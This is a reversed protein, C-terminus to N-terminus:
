KFIIKGSKIFKSNRIIFHKLPDLMKGECEKTRYNEKKTEQLVRRTIILEEGNASIYPLYEPSDSNIVEGMNIPNFYVPNKISLLAFECNLIYREHKNKEEFLNESIIFYELAEKYYANKYLREALIFIPHANNKSELDYVQLYEDVSELIKGEKEYISSMLLHPKKWKNNKKLLKLTEEKAQELDEQQILEFIKEYKKIDKNSQSFLLVSIFM